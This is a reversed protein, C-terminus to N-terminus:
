NEMGATDFFGGAVDGQRRAVKGGQWRTGKDGRGEAWGIGETERKM